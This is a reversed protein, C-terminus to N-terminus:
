RQKVIERVVREGDVVVELLYVGNPLNRLDLMKTYSPSLNDEQKAFVIQGLINTLTFSAQKLGTKQLAIDIDTSFPNPYISLQVNDTLDAVDNILTDCFKIIWYDNTSDWPMQTKYYGITATTWNTIVYCGDTTQFANTSLANENLFITKDWQLNFNSDLKIIWSLILATNNETKDGSAPSSSNGGILYGRDSTTTLSLLDDEGLGGYSKDWIKNGSADIKVLWYDSAGPGKNPWTKSCTSDSDSYGGLLFSGDNLPLIVKLEDWGNGGYVKDWLKNGSGDIRVVWYNYTSSPCNAETKDGGIGSNSMGGLIYGGDATQKVDYMFNFYTGGFRREWQISGNVDTKVVWYDVNGRSHQHIDGSSDSYTNGGLIFGSDRTQEIVFLDDEANGGFRKDWEKNGLADMKVMWYDFGGRSDQTKDCGIESASIGAAIFGGDCTQKVNLIGDDGRGGFRKDWIKQGYADLRVVWYDYTNFSTDCNDQTKDGGAGSYVGGGLFYGGDSTQITSWLEDQLLGGYRKDWQKALAHQQTQGQLIFVTLFLFLFLAKV